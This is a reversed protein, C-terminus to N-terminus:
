DAYAGFIFSLMAQVATEVLQRPNLWSVMPRRVFGLESRELSSPRDPCDHTELAQHSHDREPTSM